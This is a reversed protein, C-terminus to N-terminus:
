RGSGLGVESVSDLFEFFFADAASAGAVSMIAFVAIATLTLAPKTM